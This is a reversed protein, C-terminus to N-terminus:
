RRTATAVSTAVGATGSAGVAAVVVILLCIIVCLLVLGGVVGLIIWLTRNNTGRTPPPQNANAMYGSPPPPGGPAAYPQGPQPAEGTGAGGSYTRTPGPTAGGGQGGSPYTLPATTPAAFPPEGQTPLREQSPADTGTAPRSIRTVEALPAIPTPAPERRQAPSSENGQETPAVPGSPPTWSRYNWGADIQTPQDGVPAPDSPAPPAELPDSAPRSERPLEFRETPAAHTTERVPVLEITVPLSDSAAPPNPAEEVPTVAQTKADSTPTPDPAPAAAPAEPTARSPHLAQEPLIPPIPTPMIRSPQDGRSVQPLRTGCRECFRSGPPNAAGCAACVISNRDKGISGTTM